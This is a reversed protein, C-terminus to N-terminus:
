LLLGQCHVNPPQNDYATEYLNNEFSIDEDTPSEDESPNCSNISDEQLQKNIKYIRETRPKWITEYIARVYCATLTAVLTTSYKFQRHYPRFQNFYKMREKVDTIYTDTVLGKSIPENLSTKNVALVDIYEKM